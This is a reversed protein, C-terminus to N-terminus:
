NLSNLLEKVSPRQKYDTEFFRYIIKGDKDIIFVAPIPLYAADQQKNIQVLDINWRNKYKNTTEDDVKFSVNYAKAIEMNKDHLISFSAKTKEITKIIGEQAEPTIAIVQAGKATIYQLSDNLESLQRNCYPCWNGRYFLVVVSGQKRLESLSVRKGNQDDANFEPAVDNVILGDPNEQSFGVSFTLLFIFLCLLQKM